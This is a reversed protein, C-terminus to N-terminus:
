DIISPKRSVIEGSDEARALVQIDLDLDVDVDLYYTLAFLDERTTTCSGGVSISHNGVSKINSRFRRNTVIVQSCLRRGPDLATCVRLKMQGILTGLISRFSFTVTSVM